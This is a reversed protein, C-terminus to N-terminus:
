ERDGAGLWRLVRLEQARRGLTQNEPRLREVEHRHALREGVKGIRTVRQHLGMSDELGTAPQRSRALPAAEASARLVEEKLAEGRKSPPVVQAKRAVAGLAGAKTFRVHQGLQQFARAEVDGQ